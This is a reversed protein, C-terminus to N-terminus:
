EIEGDSLYNIEIDSNNEIEKMIEKYKEDRKEEMLRIHLNDKMESYNKEIEAERKEYWRLIYFRDSIKVTRWTYQDLEVLTKWIDEDVDGASVFGFYGGTKGATEESYKIAVEKFKLGNKLENVAEEFKEVKAIVIRQYKYETIKKLYERKHLQYYNFLEEENIDISNLKSAIIANAKIKKTSSKIREQILPLDSLKEQDCRQALATLNVWEQINAEKEKRTMSSWITDNFSARFDEYRLIENNVKALYKEEQQKRSCGTFIALLVLIYIIIKM